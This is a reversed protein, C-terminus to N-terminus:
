LLLLSIAGGAGAFLSLQAQCSPCYSPAKTTSSDFAFSITTADNFVPRQPRYINGGLLRYTKSISAESPRSAFVDSALRHIKVCLHFPYRQLQFVTSTHRPKGPYGQTVHGRLVRM